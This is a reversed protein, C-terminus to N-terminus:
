GLSPISSVQMVYKTREALIKDEKQGMKAIAEWVGYDGIVFAAGLCIGSRLFASHYESKNGRTRLKSAAKKRNNQYFFWVYRAVLMETGNLLQDLKNETGGFYSRMIHSNMFGGSMGLGSAKDFKKTIKRFAEQNTTVYLRLFELRRYYETCAYKLRKRAAQEVPENIPVRYANSREYDAAADLEKLSPISCRSDMQVGDDAWASDKGRQKRLKIEVGGYDISYGKHEEANTQMIVLQEDLDRFRKIAEEEKARYFAEVKSLEGLLWEIFEAEAKEQAAVIDSYVAAAAAPKKKANGFGTVKRILPGPVLVSSRHATRAEANEVSRRRSPAGSPRGDPQEQLKQFGSRIHLLSTTPNAHKGNSDKENPICRCLEKVKKKGAKYNLYKADWESVKLEEM